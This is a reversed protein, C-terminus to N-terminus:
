VHRIAVYEALTRILDLDPGATADAYAIDFEDLAAKALDSGVDRAWDISGTKTLLESAQDLQRPLRRERPNAFLRELWDRDRQGVNEFAHALILTRKGEWLDGGIEKGYRHEDGTLNLVDDQIQFAAGMLFGFRNFCNLGDTRGALLAGLRMPHIFSYWATKKLVLNLYDEPNVNCRNDSNWGLELAQGEISELLLHDLEETIQEATAPDAHGASTRAMRLALAYMADGTNVALPVGVTSHLTPRGRRTTSGDEIDDHVLFANHLLELAAALDLGDDANGGHASMTALLLGPRLGKGPRDVFERVLDYLYRGPERDPIWTQLRAMTRERYWDLREAFDSPGSSAAPSSV